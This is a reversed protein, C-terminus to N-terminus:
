STSSEETEITKDVPDLSEEKGEIFFVYGLYLIMGVNVASDAINFTPWRTFFFWDPWDFSIFDVVYGRILREPINGFAGGLIFALGVSPLVHQDKYQYLLYFLLFIACIAMVNVLPMPIFTLSFIMNYNEAYDLRFLEGNAPWYHKGKLAVIAWYKTAHDLVVLIASISLFKLM